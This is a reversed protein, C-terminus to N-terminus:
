TATNEMYSEVINLFEGTYRSWTFGTIRERANKRLRHALDPYERIKLLHDAIHRPNADDLILATLGDEALAKTGARTTVVPVGCAMAEAVANAWGASLELNVFVDCQHYFAKLEAESLMGHYVVRESLKLDSQKKFVKHVDKGFFHIHFDPPLLTLSQILPFPNKRIQAGVVFPSDTPKPYYSFLVDDIGGILVHVNAPAFLESEKGRWDPANAIVINPQFSNRVRMFEDKKTLDNLLMQIRLGYNEERFLEFADMIHNPFGAGPILTATWNTTRAEDLSVCQHSWEGSAPLFPLFVLEHGSKKLVKAMRAFRLLGGSVVMKNCPVLFKLKRQM